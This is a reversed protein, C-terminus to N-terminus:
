YRLECQETRPHDYAGFTWRRDLLFTCKEYRSFVELSVQINLLIILIIGHREM